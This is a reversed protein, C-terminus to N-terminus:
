PLPPIPIIKKFGLFDAKFCSGEKACLVASYVNLDLKKYSEVIKKM